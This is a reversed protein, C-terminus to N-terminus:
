ELGSKLIILKDIIPYDTKFDYNRQCDNLNNLNIKKNQKLKKFQEQHKVILPHPNILNKNVELKEYVKLVEARKEDELFNFLIKKEKISKPKNINHNPNFVIRNQTHSSLPPIAPKKGARLQGWYANSPLPINMLKCKKRIANDSVGYAKCLKSLPEKWVQKYLEERTTIIPNIM